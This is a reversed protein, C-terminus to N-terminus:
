CVDSFSNNSIRVLKLAFDIFNKRLNYYEWNSSLYFYACNALM